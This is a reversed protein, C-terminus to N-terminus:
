TAFSDVEKFLEGGYKRGVYLGTKVYVNTNATTIEKDLFLCFDDFLKRTDIHIVGSMFIHGMTAGGASATISWKVTRNGHAIHALHDNHSLSNRYMQWVLEPYEIGLSRLLRQVRNDTGLAPRYITKAVAEIVPFLLRASGWFGVLNGTAAEDDLKEFYISVDDALRSRVGTLYDVRSMM